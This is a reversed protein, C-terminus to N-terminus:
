KFLNENNYIIEVFERCSYDLNIFYKLLHIVFASAQQSM